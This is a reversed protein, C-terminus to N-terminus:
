DKVLARTYDAERRIAEDVVQEPTLNRMDRFILDCIDGHPLAIELKDLLRSVIVDDTVETYISQVLSLIEDRTV